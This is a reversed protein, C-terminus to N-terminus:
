GLSKPKPNAVHHALEHRWTPLLLVVIGLMCIHFNTMDGNEMIRPESGSSSANFIFNASM